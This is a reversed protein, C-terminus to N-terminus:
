EADYLVLVLVCLVLVAIFMSDLAFLIYNGTYLHWVQLIILPILLFLCAYLLTTSM